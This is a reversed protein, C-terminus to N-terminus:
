VNVVPELKKQGAAGRLREIRRGRKKEQGSAHELYPVFDTATPGDTAKAVVQQRGLTQAVDVPDISESGIGKRSKGGCCWPVRKPLRLRSGVLDFERGDSHDDSRM